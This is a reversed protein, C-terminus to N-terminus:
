WNTFARNFVDESLQDFIESALKDRVDIFNADKSFDKFFTFNSNWKSKEHKNDIFNVNITIELRNASPVQNNQPAVPSVIFNTIKGVFEIDPDVEVYKLRTEKRIKDKLKETIEQALQFPADYSDVTFNAIYFTNSDAPISTGKFSYCGSMIVILTLFSALFSKKKIM